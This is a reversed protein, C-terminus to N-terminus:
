DELWYMKNKDVPTEIELEHLYNKISELAWPKYYYEGVSLETETQHIENLKDKKTKIKTLLYNNNSLKFQSIYGRKWIHIERDGGQRTVFPLLTAPFHLSLYRFKSKVHFRGNTDTVVLYQDTVVKRLSMLISYEYYSTVLVNANTIPQKTDADLLNGNIGPIFPKRIFDYNPIIITILLMLAALVAPISYVLRNKLESRFVKVVFYGLGFAVALIIINGLM